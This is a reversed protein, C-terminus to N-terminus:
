ERVCVVYYNNAKYIWGDDGYDFNVIWAGTSNKEESTWFWAYKDNINEIFEKRIFFSNGRSNKNRKDKNKNETTTM